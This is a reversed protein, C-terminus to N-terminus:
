KTEATLSWEGPKKATRRKKLDPTQIYVCYVFGIEVWFRHGGCFISLCSCLVVVAFIIKEEAEDRRALPRAARSPERSYVEAKTM